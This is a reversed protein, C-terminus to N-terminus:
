SQLVQSTCEDILSEGTSGGLRTGLESNELILGIISDCLRVLVDARAKVAKQKSATLSKLLIEQFLEENRSIQLISKHIAFHVLKGVVAM